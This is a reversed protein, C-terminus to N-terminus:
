KVGDGAARYEAESTSLSVVRRTKNAHSVVTRGVTLAIGSVSRGDNEKNAYDADAYVNLSLGSGQLYTIGLSKTGNLYSLIEMTAQWQRKTPEHAYRAVARVANTIDPRTMTSLWMLSGVAERVPWPGERGDDQKPGLDAGPSAPIDSISQVDFQKMLSEVYPEQSLKITGLKVDSEIGCGNYWTCEGLNTTPFTKNLSALLSESDEESGGILLDDVYVGVIM